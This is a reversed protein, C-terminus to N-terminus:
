CLLGMQRELFLLKPRDSEFSLDKANISSLQLDLPGERLSSLEGDKEQTHEYWLHLGYSKRLNQVMMAELCCWARTYYRDNTLSIVADCQAIIMPLASVGRMPDDQDVCAHDKVFFDTIYLWCINLLCVIWISLSRKDVNPHTDLFQEIANLMRHYLTNNEDDPTLPGPNIRTYSLFIVFDSGTSADSLRPRIPHALADSSRPLRGFACLASYSLVRLTDFLDEQYGSASLADAYVRRLKALTDTAKANSLLTPRLKEQFLERYGKRLRSNMMRQAIQDEKARGLTRRLNDIVIQVTAADNNFVAYDLCTNGTADAVELDVGARVLELLYQRHEESPERCLAVAPTCGGPFNFQEIAETERGDQLLARGFFFRSMAIVTSDDLRQAVNLSDRAANIADHRNGQAAYCLSLRSLGIVERTRAYTRQQALTTPDMAALALKDKIQRAIRVRENLQDTALQLVMADHTQQSLQYNVMGLNGIARCMAQEHHLQKAVNYQTQFARKADALRDMHRYVVGLEGSFEVRQVSPGMESLARELIDKAQEYRGFGRNIHALEGYVLHRYRTANPFGPTIDILNLASNLSRLAQELEARRAHRHGESMHDEWSRLIDVKNALLGPTSGGPDRLQTFSEAGIPGLVGADKKFGRSSDFYFLTAHLADPEVESVHYAAAPISYTVDRAHIVTNSPKAIMLRSTEKAVSYTQTTRYIKEPNKGDSWALTYEAHTASESDQTSEVHYSVDTAQGALVWSQASPQHSHIALDPNGRQGDPLWVHLRFLEEINGDNMLSCLPVALLGQASRYANSFPQRVLLSTLSAHILRWVIALDSSTMPPSLTNRSKERLFTVGLTLLMLQRQDESDIIATKMGDLWGHFSLAGPRVGESLTELGPIGYSSIWLEVPRVNDESTKTAVVVGKLVHLLKARQIRFFPTVSNSKVTDDRGISSETHEDLVAPIENLADSLKQKNLSEAQIVTM